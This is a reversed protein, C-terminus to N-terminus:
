RRMRERGILGPAIAFRAPSGRSRQLHSEAALRSRGCNSELVSGTGRRALRLPDHQLAFEARGFDHEVGVRSAVQACQCWGEAGRNLVLPWAM